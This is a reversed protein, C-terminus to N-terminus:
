LALIPEYTGRVRIHQRSTTQEFDDIAEFTLCMGADESLTESSQYLMSLLDHCQQQTYGSFSLVLKFEACDIRQMFERCRSILGRIAEVCDGDITSLTLEDNMCFGPFILRKSKLLQFGEFRHISSSHAANAEGRIVAGLLKWKSMIFRLTHLFM